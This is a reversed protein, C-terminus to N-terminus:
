RIRLAMTPAWWSDWGRWGVQTGSHHAGFSVHYWVTDIEVHGSGFFLLDGRRAQSLPIWYLHPSGALMGYTDRPLVIGDAHLVAAWVLGSCDYGSGCPGTGGWAYWCGLAHAEAWDLARAGPSEYYATLTVVAPRVPGTVAAVGCYYRTAWASWNTGGHSIIVAARANGYPDLTALAAGWSPRNIQWLGYDGTPSIQWSEGSSEHEAICAATAAAWGPGGAARWLAELGSWSYTGPRFGGGTGRAAGGGPRPTVAACALVIRWGPMIQNGDAIGSARALAPWANAHGCFRLAIGSLTDGPRVTYTRPVAARAAPLARVAPHRWADPTLSVPVAAAAPAQQGARSAPARASLAMVAGAALTMAMMATLIIRGARPPRRHAPRYRARLRM